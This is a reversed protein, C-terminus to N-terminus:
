LMGDQMSGRELAVSLTMTLIAKKWNSTIVNANDSM